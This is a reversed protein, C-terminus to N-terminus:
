AETKELIELAAEVEVGLHRVTSALKPHGLLLQVERLNKRQRCILPAKTPRWPAATPYM